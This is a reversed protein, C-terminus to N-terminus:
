GLVARRRYYFSVRSVAALARDLTPYTAVGAEHSVRRAERLLAEVEIEEEEGAIPPLIQLVPKGRLKQVRACVEAM